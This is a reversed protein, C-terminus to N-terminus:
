AMAGEACAEKLASGFGRPPTAGARASRRVCRKWAADAVQCRAVAARTDACIRALIDRHCTPTTADDYRWRYGETGAATERRLTELAALAAGSAISRGALAVGERLDGARGAVILAAAANLLVTDRYPGTAGQLM